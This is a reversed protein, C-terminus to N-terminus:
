LSYISARDKLAVSRGYELSPHKNKHYIYTKNQHLEKLLFSNLGNEVLVQQVLLTDVSVFGSVIQWM